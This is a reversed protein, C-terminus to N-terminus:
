YLSSWVKWNNTNKKGLSDKISLVKAWYEDLRVTNTDHSDPELSLDCWETEVHEWYKEQSRGTERNDANCVLWDEPINELEYLRWQSRVKDCIDEVSENIGFVTYLNLHISKAVTM